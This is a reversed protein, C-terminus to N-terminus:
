SRQGGRYLDEAAAALKLAGLVVVTDFCAGFCVGAALGPTGYPRQLWYRWCNNTTGWTDAFLVCVAGALLVPLDTEARARWLLAGACAAWMALTAPHAATPWSFAVIVAFMAAGLGVHAARRGQWRALAESWGDATRRVVIAGLPWAPVIWLPPTERTYYRWLGLRTGWAEALWGAAFAVAARLFDRRPDAGRPVVKLTHFLIAGFLAVEFLLKSRRAGGAALGATTAAYAGVFLDWRAAATFAILGGAAALLLANRRGESRPLSM